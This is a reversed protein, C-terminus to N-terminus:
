VNQKTLQINKTRADNMKQTAEAEDKAYTINGAKDKLAIGEELEDGYEEIYIKFDEIFKDKTTNKFYIMGEGYDLTDDIFNSIYNNLESDDMQSHHQKLLLKIKEKDLKNDTFVNILSPNNVKIENMRSNDNMFQSALEDIVDEDNLDYETLGWEEIIRSLIELKSPDMIDMDLEPLDRNCSECDEDGDQSYYQDLNENIGPKYWNNTDKPNLGLKEISKRTLIKFDSPKNEPFNDTLDLKTYERISQNDYSRTENDYLESYDWGDAIKNNSKMIAFHTYGEGLDDSNENLSGIIKKIEEEKGKFIPNSDMFLDIDFNKVRIMKDGDRKSINGKKIANNFTKVSSELDEKLMKGKIMQNKAKTEKGLETYDLDQNEQKKQGSTMIKRTYYYEDNSLNKLVKQQAKILEDNTPPNQGASKDFLDLEYNLGKNYEHPSVQDITKIEQKPFFVNKDTKYKGIEESILGRTKLIQITDKFSNFKTIPLHSQHRIERLFQSENIKGQKLNNYLNQATM